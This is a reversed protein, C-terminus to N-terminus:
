GPGLEETERQEDVARFSFSISECDLIGRNTSKLQNLVLMPMM